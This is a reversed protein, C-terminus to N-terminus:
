RPVPLAAPRAAQGHPSPHLRYVAAATRWCVNARNAVSLSRITRVRDDYAGGRASWSSGFMLKRSPANRLLERLVAPRRGDTLEADQLGEVEAYLNQYARLLAPLERHAAGGAHLCVMPLGPYAAALDGLVAPRGVAEMGRDEGTHFQVPLRRERCFEYLPAFERARPDQRFLPYATAVGLLHTPHEAYLAQIQELGETPYLSDYFALGFLRGPHTRALRFFEATDAQIVVLSAAVDAADMEALLDALPSLGNGGTGQGPAPLAGDLRDFLIPLKRLLPSDHVHTDIIPM